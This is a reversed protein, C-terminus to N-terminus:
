ESPLYFDEGDRTQTRIHLVEADDEVNIGRSRAEEPTLLAHRLLPKTSQMKSRKLRNKQEPHTIIANKCQSAIEGNVQAFRASPVSILIGNSQKKTMVLLHCPDLPFWIEEATGIGIGIKPDRASPNGYLTVPSDSTILRPKQCVEVAWKLTRLIPAIKSVSSNLQALQLSLSMKPIPVDLMGDLFSKLAKVENHSPNIYNYEILFEKVSQSPYPREKIVKSALEYFDDRERSQSTRTHQLAVYESVKQLDESSLSQGSVLEERLRKWDVEWQNYLAEREIAEDGIGHFGREMCIDTINSIFTDHSGRRRAAVQDSKSAWAKLYTKPVYHHRKPAKQETM